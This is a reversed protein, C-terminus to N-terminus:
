STVGRPGNCTLKILEPQSRDHGNGLNKKLCAFPITKKVIPSQGVHVLRATYAQGNCGGTANASRDDDCLSSSIKNSVGRSTIKPPAKFFPSALLKHKLLYNMAKLNGTKGISSLLLPTCGVGIEELDSAGHEFSLFWALKGSIVEKELRPLNMRVFGLVKSVEENECINNDINLYRLTHNSKIITGINKSNFLALQFCLIGVTSLANRRMSLQLLSKNSKLGIAIKSAGIDGIHNRSLDLVELPSNGTLLTAIANGGEVGGMQTGSIKLKKIRANIELAVVLSSIGGNGLPNNSVDLSELSENSAIACSIKSLGKHNIGCDRLVLSSLSKINFLISSISSVESYNLNPDSIVLKKVRTSNGLASIIEIFGECTPEDGKEHVHSLHLEEVPPGVGVDNRELMMAICKASVHDLRNLPMHLVKVSPNVLLAPLQCRIDHESFSQATFDVSEITSKIANLQAIMSHKLTEM